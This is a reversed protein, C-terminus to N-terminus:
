HLGYTHTHTYTPTHTHAHIYTYIEKVELYFQAYILGLINYHYGINIVPYAQMGKVNM